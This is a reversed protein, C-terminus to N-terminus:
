MDMKYGYGKAGKDCDYDFMELCQGRLLSM